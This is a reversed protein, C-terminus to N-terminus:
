VHARGIQRENRRQQRREEDGDDYREDNVAHERAVNDFWSSEKTEHANLDNVAM